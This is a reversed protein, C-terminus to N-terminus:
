KDRNGFKVHVIMPRISTQRDPSKDRNGFRNGNNQSNSRTKVVPQNSVTVLGVNVRFLGNQLQLVPHNSVTALGTM